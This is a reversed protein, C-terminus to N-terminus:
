GVVQMKKTRHDTLHLDGGLRERLLDLVKRSSLVTWLPGVLHPNYEPAADMWADKGAQSKFTTVFFEGDPTKCYGTRLEAANVQMRPTCGVKAALQEVTLPAAGPGQAGAALHGGGGGSSCGAVLGALLALAALRPITTM